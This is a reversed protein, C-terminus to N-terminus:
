LKNRKNLYLINDSLMILQVSSLRCSVIVTRYINMSKLWLLVVRSKLYM